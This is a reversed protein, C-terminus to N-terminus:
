VDVRLGVADGNHFPLLQIKNQLYNQKEEFSYTCDVSAIFAQAQSLNEFAAQYPKSMQKPFVRRCDAKSFEGLLLSHTDPECRTSLGAEQACDAIVRMIARHKIIRPHYTAPCNSSAHNGHADLYKCSGSHAALCKQVPYDFESHGVEGGITLPPPLGLFARSFCVYGLPSFADHAQMPESFIKGADTRSAAQIVDSDTLTPNGLALLSFATLKEFKDIKIKVCMKLAIQSSKPKSPNIPSYFTGDLLGLSSSPYLHKVQTWYKCEEGGHLEVLAQWAPEAFRQLGSRLKYLLEDKLCASVSAWWAVGAQDIAKFLGCGFPAPLSAKLRARDYREQSCTTLGMIEFFASEVEEDFKALAPISIHPPVTTAIYCMLKSMCSTILRHGGRPSKKGLLKVASLKSCAEAVRDDVFKRMFDDSGVPSGAIRFGDQRFEFGAPFRARVEPTPMPAGRPILLAGKEANLTLGAYELSLRKVDILCCSYRIYLEQWDDFSDSAPPPALPVLDDTILRFEFDPYLTQLDTPVPHIGLCFGETGASCGQRPGEQSQLVTLELEDDLLFIPSDIGYFFNFVDTSEPFLVCHNDLMKQRSLSNFANEYDNKGVLWKSEHAARCIHVLKEVGRSVGLSLQFPQVREAARQGAPSAIVAALITKSLLSGSNIPRLKPPLFAEERLQRESLELKHLPTLSGGSLLLACIQPFLSTNNALFCIFNTLSVFFGKKEGRCAYFMWPAWGYVDKSINRDAAQRFLRKSVFSHDVTLQIHPTTPLVLDSKREPHLKKLAAITSANVKAVGHSSLAKCAKREQGRLIKSLASSVASDSNASRTTTHQKFCPGLVTGPASIFAFVALFLSLPTPDSLANDFITELKTLEVSWRLRVREKWTSPSFTPIRRASVIVKTLFPLLEDFSPVHTFIPSTLVEPSPSQLNWQFTPYKAPM